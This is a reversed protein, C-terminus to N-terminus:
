GVIEAHRIEVDNIPVNHHPERTVTVVGSIQDVVEMGDIVKGFACYGWGEPTESRFNLSDNDRTNIFFQATATDPDDPLRALAVTGRANRLGTKAENVIPPRTTKQIMGSSFGGGQIVFDHVVRHFLTKNYFGDRV